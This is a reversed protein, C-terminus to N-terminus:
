KLIFAFVVICNEMGFTACKFINEFEFANYNQIYKFEVAGFINQIIEKETLNVVFRETYFIYLVDHFM